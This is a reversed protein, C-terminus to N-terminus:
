SFTILSLYYGDLQQVLSILSEKASVFRSPKIDVAAMSLSVDLIIQVPLDKEAVVQRDSIFSIRLPLLIVSCILIALLATHMRRSRQRIVNMPVIFKPKRNFFFFLACLAVLALAIRIGYISLSM